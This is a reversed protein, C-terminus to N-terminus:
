YDGRNSFSVIWNGNKAEWISPKEKLEIADSYTKAVQRYKGIERKIAKAEDIKKEIENYAIVEEQIYQGLAYSGISMGLVISLGIAVPVIWQKATISRISRIPKKMEEIEESIAERERAIQRLLEERETAIQRLMEKERDVIEKRTESLREKFSYLRTTMDEEITNLERSLQESLRQSLEKLKEEEIRQIAQFEREKGEELRKALDSLALNENM